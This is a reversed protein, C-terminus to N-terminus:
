AASAKFLLRQQQAQKRTPALAIRLAAAQQPTLGRAKASANAKQRARYRRMAAAPDYARAPETHRPARTECIFLSSRGMYNSLAPAQGQRELAASWCVEYDM